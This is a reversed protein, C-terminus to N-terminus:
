GSQADIEGKLLTLSYLGPLPDPTLHILRPRVARQFRYKAQGVLYPYSCMRTKTQKHRM